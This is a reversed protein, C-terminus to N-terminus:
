DGLLLLCQVFPFPSDPAGKKSLNAAHWDIIDFLRPVETRVIVLEVGRDGLPLANVLLLQEGLVFQTALDQLETGLLVVQEVNHPQRSRRDLDPLEPGSDPFQQTLLRRIQLPFGQRDRREALLTFSCATELCAASV